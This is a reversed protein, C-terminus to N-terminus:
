SFSRPAANVLQLDAAFPNRAQTAQMAAPMKRLQQGHQHYQGVLVIQMMSTQAPKSMFYVCRFSQAERCDRLSVILLRKPCESIHHKVDHSVNDPWVPHPGANWCPPQRSLQM